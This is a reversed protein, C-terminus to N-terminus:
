GAAFIGMIQGGVAAAACTCAGVAVVDNEASQEPVDEAGGAAAEVAPGTRTRERRHNKRGDGFM